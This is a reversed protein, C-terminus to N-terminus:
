PGNYDIAPWTGSAKLLVTNSEKVKKAPHTGIDYVIIKLRINLGYTDSNNLGQNWGPQDLYLLETETNRVIDVGPSHSIDGWIINDDGQYPSSDIHWNGDLPGGTGAQLIPKGNHSARSKQYQVAVCNQRDAFKVRGVVDWHFGNYWYAFGLKELTASTVQCSCLGFRDYRNVVDNGAIVYLNLGGQEGIPDRSFWRGTSPSYWRMAHAQTVVLLTLLGLLFKAQIKM